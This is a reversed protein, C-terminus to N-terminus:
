SYSNCTYQLMSFLYNLGTNSQSINMDLGVLRQPMTMTMLFYVHIAVALKYDSLQVFIDFNM